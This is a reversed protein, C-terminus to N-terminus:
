IFIPIMPMTVRVSTDSFIRDNESLTSQNKAVSFKPLVTQCYVAQVGLLPKICTTSKFAVPEFCSADLRHIFIRSLLSADLRNVARLLSAIM